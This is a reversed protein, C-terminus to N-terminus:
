SEEEELSFPLRDYVSFKTRDLIIKSMSCINKNPEAIKQRWPSSNMQALFELLTLKAKVVKREYFRIVKKSYLFFSCSQAWFSDDFRLLSSNGQSITQSVDFAFSSFNKQM